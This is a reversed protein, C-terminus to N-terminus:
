RRKFLHFRHIKLLQLRHLFFLRAYKKQLIWVLAKCSGRSADGFDQTTAFSLAAAAFGPYLEPKEFATKLFQKREHFSLRCTESFLSDYVWLINSCFIECLFSEDLCDNEKMFAYTLELRKYYRDFKEKRFSLTASQGERRFYRYFCDGVVRLNSLHPLLGLMFVGDEGGMNFYSDFQLHNERILSLRFLKDTIFDFLGARTLDSFRSLLDAKALDCPTKPDERLLEVAGTAKELYHHYGFCVVDFDGDEAAAVCKEVTDPDLADDGDLFLLYTGTAQPLVLNRASSVGGNEKHFVKIRRDQKAYDDCLAGSSDASGDDVLLIELDKYTQALLSEVCRPLQREVNYIPVVISVTASM